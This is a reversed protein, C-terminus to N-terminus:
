SEHKNDRYWDKFTMTTEYPEKLVRYVAYPLLIVGCSQAILISIMSADFLILLLTLLLIGTTIGLLLIAIRKM